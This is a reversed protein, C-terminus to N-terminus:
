RQKGPWFFLLLSAGVALIIAITPAILLLAAVVINAGILHLWSYGLDRLRKIQLALTPWATLVYALLQARTHAMLLDDSTWTQGANTPGVMVSVLVHGLVYTVLVMFFFALAFEKRNLRGRWSFFCWLL